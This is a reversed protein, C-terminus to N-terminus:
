SLCDHGADGGGGRVVSGASGVSLVGGLGPSRAAAAEEDRAEQEQRCGYQRGEDDAGVHRVRGELPQVVAPQDPHAAGVFPQVLSGGRHQVQEAPGDAGEEREGQQGQQEEPPAPDRDTEQQGGVQAAVHQDDLAELVQHVPRARGIRQDPHVM